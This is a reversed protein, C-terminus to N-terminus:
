LDYESTLLECSGDFDKAKIRLVHKDFGRRTLITASSYGPAYEAQLLGDAVYLRYKGSYPGDQPGYVVVDTWRPDVPVLEVYLAGPIGNHSLVLPIGTVRDTLALRSPMSPTRVRGMYRYGDIYLNGYRDRYRHPSRRYYSM